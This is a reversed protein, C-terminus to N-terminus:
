WFLIFIITFLISVGLQRFGIQTPKHGMAPRLLSGWITEIWQIAFPLILGYTIVGGISLIVVFILNFSTYLLSRKGASFKEGLPPDIKWGRQTLRLYAYVISATSQLWTLGWLWWGMSDIAGIGVWYAAPAALALVGSAVLEVGLQQREARQSILYLHWLFVPLGPIALCLIYGSGSVILGFIMILATLGYVLIWFRAAPIDQKSRRGSNAKVVIAIPQRILFASLAAAILFVSALTFSKGAFIGILLPSFLLVWSGHENTIAIAKRHNPQIFM